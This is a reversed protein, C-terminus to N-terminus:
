GGTEGALGGERGGGKGSRRGAEDTFGLPEVGEIERVHVNDATHQHRAHRM